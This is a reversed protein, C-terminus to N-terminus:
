HLIPLLSSYDDTWLRVKTNEEPRHARNFVEPIRFFAPDASLLMWTSSFAGTDPNQPSSIRMAVMGSAKALLAVEPELDVHQNSIHFALVGGPALHRKYIALAQTTLL